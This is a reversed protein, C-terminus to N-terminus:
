VKWPRVGRFYLAPMRGPFIEEKAVGQNMGLAPKGM